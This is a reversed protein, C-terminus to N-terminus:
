QRSARVLRYSGIAVGALGATPLLFFAGALALPPWSDAAPGRPLLESSYLLVAGVLILFWAVRKEVSMTM